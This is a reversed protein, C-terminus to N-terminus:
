QFTAVVKLSLKWESTTAVVVQKTVEEGVRVCWWRVNSEAEKKHTSEVTQFACFGQMWHCVSAEVRKAWVVSENKSGTHHPVFNSNEVLFLLVCVCCKFASESGFQGFWGVSRGRGNSAQTTNKARQVVKKWARKKIM